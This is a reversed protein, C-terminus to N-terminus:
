FIIVLLQILFFRILNKKFSFLHIGFVDLVFGKMKFIVCKLCNIPLERLFFRFLQQKPEPFILREQLSSFNQSNERMRFLRDLKFNSFSVNLYVEEQDLRLSCLFFKRFESTTNSLTIREYQTFYYKQYILPKILRISPQNYLDHLRAMLGKLFASVRTYSPELFGGQTKLQLFKNLVKSFVNLSILKKCGKKIQCILKKVKKAKKGNLDIFPGGLLRPDIILQALIQPNQVYFQMIKLYCAVINCTAHLPPILYPYAYWIAM